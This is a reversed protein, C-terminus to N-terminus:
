RILFKSAVAGCSALIYLWVADSRLLVSLSLATILTSRFGAVPTKLWRELLWQTACAAGIVLGPQWWPPPDVRLVAMRATLFFVLFAIQFIRPDEPLISQIRYALGSQSNFPRM